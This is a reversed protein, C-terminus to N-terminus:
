VDVGVEWNAEIVQSGHSGDARVYSLKVKHILRRGAHAVRASFAAFSTPTGPEFTSGILPGSPVIGYQHLYKDEVLGFHRRGTSAFSFDFFRVDTLFGDADLLKAETIKVERQGR